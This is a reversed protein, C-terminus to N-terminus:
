LTKLSQTKDVGVRFALPEFGGLCAVYCLWGERTARTINPCSRLNSGVLPEYLRSQRRGPMEEKNKGIFSIGYGGLCALFPNSDQCLVIAQFSFLPASCPPYVGKTQHVTKPYSRITSVAPHLWSPLQKAATNKRRKEPASAM